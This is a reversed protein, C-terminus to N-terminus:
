SRQLFSGNAETSKLGNINVLREVSPSNQCSITISSLLSLCTNGYNFFRQTAATTEWFELGKAHCTKTELPNSNQNCRVTTKVILAPKSLQACLM